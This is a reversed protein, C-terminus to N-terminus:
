DIVKVKDGAKLNSPPSVIVIQGTRIGSTIETLNGLKKGIVVDIELVKDNNIMYVIRRNDKIVLAKNPITVAAINATITEGTDASFFNIRASMEPLVFKDVEDFAIKTMVTARSRDATPVIKKVYGKYRKDPYADLIIDCNQNVIVRQINSESVDAEVELSSMDALDVLAGRSSASSAMPAVIEGVDAYKTLVTGDFPARIYTNELSVNAAKVAAIAYRVGAISNLHGAEAVEVYDETTSGTELLQKQRYYNLAAETSGARAQALQAKAMDLAAQMDENELRGVVQGRKVEDGEEVELYELRGTAKSAVAAQRQAVVYGTASLVSQAQTQTLVSATATKVEITPSLNSLIVLLITIALAPIIIWLSLKIYKGIAAPEDSDRSIKLASLDQKSNM